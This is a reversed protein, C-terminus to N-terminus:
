KCHVCLNKQNLLEKVTEVPIYNTKLKEGIPGDGSRRYVYIGIPSNGVVTEQYTALMTLKSYVWRLAPMKRHRLYYPNIKTKMQVIQFCIKPQNRASRLIGFGGFDSQIDNEIMGQLTTNTIIDDLANKCIISVAQKRIKELDSLTISILFNCVVIVMIVNFIFFVLQRFWDNTRSKGEDPQFYDTFEVEGTMMAMVKNFGGVGSKFPLNNHDVVLRFVNAFAFILPLFFRLVATTKVLLTQLMITYISFGSLGNATLSFSVGAMMFIIVCAYHLFALNENSNTASEFDDRAEKLKMSVIEFNLFVLRAQKLCSKLDPYQDLNEGPHVIKFINKLNNLSKDVSKRTNCINQTINLIFEHNEYQVSQDNRLIMKLDSVTSIIGEGTHANNLLATKLHFSVDTINDGIDDIIRIAKNIPRYTYDSLVNAPLNLAHHPEDFSSTSLNEAGVIQCWNKDLGFHKTRNIISGAYDLSAMTHNAGTIDMPVEWPFIILYIVSMFFLIMQLWNTRSEFYKRRTMIMEILELILIMVLSMFAGTYIQTKTLGFNHPDIPYLISTSLGCAFYIFLLISMREILRLFALKGAYTRTFLYVVIHSRIQVDWDDRIQQLFDVDLKAPSEDTAEKLFVGFDIVYLGMKDDEKTVALDLKERM